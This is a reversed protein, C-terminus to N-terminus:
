NIIVFISDYSDSKCDAFVPLSTVFNISLDKWQHIPVPLSQLDGYPKHYVAKSTPCVECWWIYSEIVRQLSPWYYKRSVLERTKEIGFHDVLPDNHHCNIVESWIIEPVYLLGQYQLVRKVDEWGKPFRAARRLLKAEENNEQLESLRLRM